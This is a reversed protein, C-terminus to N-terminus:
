KPPLVKFASYFSENAREVRLSGDLVLFPDSATRLISEAFDREIQSQRAPLSAIQENIRKIELDTEQLSLLQSLEPSM